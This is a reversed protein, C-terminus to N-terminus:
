TVAVCIAAVVAGGITGSHTGTNGNPESISVASVASVATASGTPSGENKKIGEQRFREM